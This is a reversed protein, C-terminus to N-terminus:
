KKLFGFLGKKEKIEETSVIDKLEYGTNAIVSALKEEDLPANSEVVTEGKLHSSSVKKIDFNQRIVDNIHSECMSCMMGDIRLVTKIM